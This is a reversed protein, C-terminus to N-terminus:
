EFAHMLRRGAAYEDYGTTLQWNTPSGIGLSPVIISLAAALELAVIVEQQITNRQIDFRCYQAAVSEVPLGSQIKWTVFRTFHPLYQLITLARAARTSQLPKGGAAGGSKVKRKRQAPFLFWPDGVPSKIRLKCPTM